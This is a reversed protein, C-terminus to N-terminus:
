NGYLNDFEAVGNIVIADELISYDYNENIHLLKPCYKDKKDTIENEEVIVRYNTKYFKYEVHLNLMGNEIIIKQQNEKLVWLNGEQNFEVKPMKSVLGKKGTVLRPNNYEVFFCNEFEGTFMLYKNNNSRDQILNYAITQTDDGSHYIFYFTDLYKFRRPLTTEKLHKRKRGEKISILIIIGFVLASFGVILIWGNEILFNIVNEM